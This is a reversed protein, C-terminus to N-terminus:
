RHASQAAPRCLVELDRLLVNFRAVGFHNVLTCRKGCRKAQKRARWVAAHSNVSTVVVVLDCREVLADLAAGGRGSVDGVHFELEVGSQGALTRFLDETRDVGGVIGLRM